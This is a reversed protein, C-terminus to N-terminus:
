IVSASDLVLSILVAVVGVLGFAFVCLASTPNVIRTSHATDVYEARGMTAEVGYLVPGKCTSMEEGVSDEGDDTRTQLLWLWLWLWLWLLPSLLPSLWRM